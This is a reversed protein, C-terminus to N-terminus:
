KSRFGHQADTITNNHDFHEIVNSRIIYELMKCPVLTLSIPRYNEPNSRDTKGSKYLPSVLADWWANPIKAQHLSARFILTMGASLEEATLKLFRSQEKDLGSAKFPDLNKMLRRVGEIDIHIEPMEPSLPLTLKPIRFDVKTFVSCFQNNLVHAKENNSIVITGNEHLPVVGIDECRKTKVYSFFQRPNTSSNGSLAKSVLNYAQKCTKRIVSAVKQFNNWDSTLTTRKAKIYM